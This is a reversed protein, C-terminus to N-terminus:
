RSAQVAKAMTAAVAWHTSCRAASSEGAIVLALGSSPPPSSMAAPSYWHSGSLPMHRVWQREGRPTKAASQRSPGPPASV